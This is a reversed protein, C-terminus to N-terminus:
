TICLIAPLIIGTCQTGNGTYGVMCECTFSGNTNVCSASLGCTGESCEDIDISYFLLM